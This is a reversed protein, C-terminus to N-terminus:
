LTKRVLPRSPSVQQIIEFGEDEFINLPGTYSFAAPLQRGDKTLTVPYAEIITVKRRKMFKLAARLMGRALGQRRYRRDIFFCNISWVGDTDERRYARSRETRPFVSRPGFSCWGVPKGGDYALLGTIENSTFLKKMMRKARAGKTEDWLKGGRPLRWWQCWCGGCAGNEGFLKEFDDWLKSSVEKFTFGPM